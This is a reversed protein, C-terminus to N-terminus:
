IRTQQQAQAIRQGSIRQAVLIVASMVFVMVVGLASAQNLDGSEWKAWIRASLVQSDPGALMLPLSIERFVLLGTWLGGFILSSRVLPAVVWWMTGLRRAGCVQASEELERGVQLLAANTIRTVYSLRTVANAIVIVGVTQYLPIWPVWKAALIAVITLAFAFGLGPIAHPLMAILDVVKRGRVRTRVVVWSIMFSFFLVILPTVVTLVVTNVIVNVGGIVNIIGRYWKFSMLSLTDTSPMALYPLLSAWILILLPLVVALLLYLIVFGLAIVRGRGLEFDAPRYGKGTVVVYRHSKDIVRLYYYLAILSPVAIMLGYVGSMGYRPIGAADGSPNTNLFLETALVPTRGIGGLLAAVEFISIATMFVYIAGGLIAPWLLPLSVWRMTRWGTAGSVQAAEELVPDMSKVPGALLFFMTPTLMLGQVFAVGWVNTISLPAEKLGFGYMIWKNILGIKPSLLMIWGMAKLFGPVIVAVAILTTWLERCPVDTRNLLWALPVSFFLVVTVTGFGVIATNPIVRQVLYSDFADRYNQLTINPETPLGSVFSMWVVFAVLLIVAACAFWAFFVPLRVSVFEGAAEQARFGWGGKRLGSSFVIEGRLLRLNM